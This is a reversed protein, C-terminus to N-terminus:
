NEITKGKSGRWNKEKWSKSWVSCGMTVYQSDSTLLCNITKDKIAELAFIAAYLECQQSTSNPVTGYQEKHHGNWDLIFAWAGINKTMRYGGDSNVYIKNDM